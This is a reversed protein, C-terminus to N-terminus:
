SDVSVSVDGKEVQELRVGDLLDGHHVVVTQDMAARIANACDCCKGRPVRWVLQPSPAWLRAVGGDWDDSRNRLWRPCTIEEGASLGSWGWGFGHAAVISLFVGATAVCSTSVARLVAAMSLAQAQRTAAVIPM